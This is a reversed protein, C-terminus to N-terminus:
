EPPPEATLVRTRLRDGGVVFRLELRPLVVPCPWIEPSVHDLKVWDKETMVIAECDQALAAIRDISRRGYHHHDRLVLRRHVPRGAAREIGAIFAEPHGIACVAAIRRGRLWSLPEDVVEGGGVRRLVAWAHEAEAIPSEGTIEAIRGSLGDITSRGVLECHTLIIGDARRLAEVPERLRGAPLCRDGFPDRTADILVLDLQRAIRRHQFGDDLVISDVRGGAETGFLQLLGLLRDPQAVVPVREGFTTGYARAEDSFGGGSRYGRMAIAPSRGAEILWRVICSVMPTKGTGGVSLNGVSIVPRDITIVGRGADYRANRRGLEALYVREAIRAVPGIPAPVFGDNRM